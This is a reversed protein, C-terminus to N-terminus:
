NRQHRHERMRLSVLSAIGTHRHAIQFLPNFNAACIVLLEKSGLRLPAEDPQEAVTLLAALDPWMGQVSAGLAADRDVLLIRAAARNLLYGWPAPLWGSSDPM